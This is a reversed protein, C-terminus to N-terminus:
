RAVAVTPVLWAVLAMLALVGIGVWPYFGSAIWAVAGLAFTAWLALHYWHGHRMDGAGRSNLAALARQKDLQRSHRSPPGSALDAGIAGNM